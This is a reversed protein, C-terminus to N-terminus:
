TFPALDPDNSNPNPDITFCVINQSIGLFPISFLLVLIKKM